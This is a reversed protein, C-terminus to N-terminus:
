SPIKRARAMPWAKQKLTSIDTGSLNDLNSYQKSLSESVTSQSLRHNFQQYFWDSAQKQTSRPHQLAIRQEITIAQKRGM